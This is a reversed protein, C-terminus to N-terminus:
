ARRWRDFESEQQVHHSLSDSRAPSPALWALPLSLISYVINDRHPPASALVRSQWATRARRCEREHVFQDGLPTTLSSRSFPHCGHNVGRYHKRRDQSSGPCSAAARDGAIRRQRDATLRASARTAAPRDTTEILCAISVRGDPRTLTRRDDVEVRFQGVIEASRRGASSAPPGTAPLGLRTEGERLLAARDGQRGVPRPCAYIHVLPCHPHHTLLRDGHCLGDLGHHVDGVHRQAVVRM